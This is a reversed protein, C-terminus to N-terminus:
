ANVEPNNWLVLHITLNGRHWQYLEFPYPLCQVTCLNFFFLIHVYINPYVAYMLTIDIICYPKWPSSQADLVHHRWWISVNEANCFRQAPFEGTVPSNGACLGTVRLKSITNSRRNHLCDYPQHNSVGDLRKHRWQLPYCVRYANWETPQQWTGM